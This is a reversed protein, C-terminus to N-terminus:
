SRAGIAMGREELFAEIRPRADYEQRFSVGIRDHRRWRFVVDVRGLGEVELSQVERPSLEPAGPASLCAGGFSLDSIRGPIAQDWTVVHCPLDLAVRGDDLFDSIEM